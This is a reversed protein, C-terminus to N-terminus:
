KWTGYVKGTIEIVKRTTLTAGSINRAWANLDRASTIVMKLRTRSINGNNLVENAALGPLQGIERVPRSTREIAVRDDQSDPSADLSEGIETATLVSNALGVRVPGEGATGGFTGVVLDASILYADQVLDLLAGSAIGDNALAGVVITVNVKSVFFNKSRGRKGPFYTPKGARKPM